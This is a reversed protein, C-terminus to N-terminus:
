QKEVSAISARLRRLTANHTCQRDQEKKGATVINHFAVRLKKM